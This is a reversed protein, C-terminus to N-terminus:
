TCGPEVCRFGIAATLLPARAHRKTCTLFEPKRGQCFGKFMRAFGNEASGAGPGKPDILPGDAPAKDYYDHSYFDACWEAANGALGVVGDPTAGAPFADVPTYDGSTLSYGRTEDPPDNGWPYTRGELGGAAFEWEAETPLRKGAWEAFGAAQYWNVAIVPWRANDADVFFRGDKDRKINSWTASNWYGSNGDNLFECYEANTVKYKDIYFSSLKVAYKDGTREGLEASQSTFYHGPRVFEGSKILVMGETGLKKGAQGNVPIRDPEIGTASYRRLLLNRVLYPLTVATQSERPLMAFKQRCAASAVFLRLGETDIYLSPDVQTRDVVRILAAAKEDLRRHLDQWHIQSPPLQWVTEDAPCDLLYVKTNKPAHDAQEQAQVKVASIGLCSAAVVSVFRTAVITRLSIM